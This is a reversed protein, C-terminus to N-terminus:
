AELYFIPEIVAHEISITRGYNETPCNGARGGRGRLDDLWALIYGAGREACESDREMRRKRAFLKSRIAGGFAELSYGTEFILCPISFRSRFELGDKTSCFACIHSLDFLTLTM